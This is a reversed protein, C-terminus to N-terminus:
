MQGIMEVADPLHAARSAEKPSRWVVAPAAAWGIMIGAMVGLVFGVVFVSVM